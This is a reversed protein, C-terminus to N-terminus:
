LVKVNLAYIFDGEASNGSHAVLDIEVFGPTTVDWNDTRIPIQHKRLTGPKTRGYIRRTLKRKHPGLCRDIQRASITVLQREQETSLPFRHKIWPLWLPVLAKLRVSWPYGAAEWVARLVRVVLPGYTKGRVSRRRVPPKDAPAPGNLKRIAYKRHYDCVRCFEDLMRQKAAKSAKRYRGYLSKFYEWKARRSM